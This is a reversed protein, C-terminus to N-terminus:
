NPSFTGVDLRSSSSTNNAGFITRLLPYLCDLSPQDWTESPITWLIGLAGHCSPQTNNLQTPQDRKTLKDM